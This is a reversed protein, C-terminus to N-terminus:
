KRVFRIVGLLILGIPIWLFVYLLSFGLAWLPYLFEGIDAGLFKCEEPGRAWIVCGNLQAIQAVTFAAIWLLAPWLVILVAAFAPLERRGDNM